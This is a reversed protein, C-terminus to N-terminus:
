HRVTRRDDQIRGDDGTFPQGVPTNIAGGFGRDTRECPCPCHIQLSAANAHVRHAGTGGVRRPQALQQTGTLRPLLPQLHNGAANRQAPETCGVLDRLSDHKEGGIVAAIDGTDFQEDIATERLDLWVGVNGTVSIGRKNSM